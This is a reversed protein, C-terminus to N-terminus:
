LTMLVSSKIQLLMLRSFGSSRADLDYLLKITICISLDRHTSRIRRPDGTHLHFMVLLILTIAKTLANSTHDLSSGQRFHYLPLASYCPSCSSHVSGVCSVGLVLDDDLLFM